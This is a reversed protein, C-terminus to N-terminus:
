SGHPLLPTSFAVYHSVKHDARKVMYQKPSSVFIVRALCTDHTPSTLPEYLTNTPVHSPLLCSPLGLCLRIVNLHPKLFDTPSSCLNYQTKAKWLM